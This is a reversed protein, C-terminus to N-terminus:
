ALPPKGRKRFLDNVAEVLLTNVTSDEDLAMQRLQRHAPRALRLIIGRREEAHAKPRGVPRMVAAQDPAAPPAPETNPKRATFDSLSARKAM